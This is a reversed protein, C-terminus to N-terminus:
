ATLKKERIIEYITKHKQEGALLEETYAKRVQQIIKAVKKAWKEAWAIVDQEPKHDHTGYIQVIKTKELNFEITVFPTDPEAAKRLFAIFSTGAIMRNDYGMKGVCHHLADGEAVLDKKAVPIAILFADGPKCYNAFAYDKAAASFRREYEKAAEANRQGKLAAAENIRLDHMRRFDHPFIVKKDTLDLQLYKVAALYDNYSRPGVDEAYNWIRRRDIDKPIDKAEWCDGNIHRSARAKSNIEEYADDFACKHKYAYMTVTAGFTAAQKANDRLFRRFNGDKTAKSILGKTPMIGLKGFFEVGPNINYQQLYEIVSPLSRPQWGSYKYRPITLVMEPNIWYASLGPAKALPVPQWKNFWGKQWLTYNYGYYGGRTVKEEDRYIVQWGCLQRYYMNRHYAYDEAPSKRMVETIEFGRSKTNRFAFWRLMLDTGDPAEFTDAVVVMSRQYTFSYCNAGSGGCYQFPGHKRMWDELVRPIPLEDLPMANPTFTGSGNDDFLEAM